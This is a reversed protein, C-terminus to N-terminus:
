SERIGTIMYKRTDFYREAGNKLVADERIANYDDEEMDDILSMILENRDSELLDLLWRRLAKRKRKKIRCDPHEAFFDDLNRLASRLARICDDYGDAFLRREADLFDYNYYNDNRCDPILM